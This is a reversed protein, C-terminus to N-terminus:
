FKSQQQQQQQTHTHTSYIPKIVGILWENPSFYDLPSMEGENQHKLNRM